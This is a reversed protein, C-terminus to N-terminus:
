GAGGSGGATGVTVTTTTTTTSTISATILAVDSSYAKLFGPMQLDETLQEVKKKPLGFAIAYCLDAARDEQSGSHDPNQLWQYYAYIHNYRQLGEPTYHQFFVASLAMMLSIFMAAFALVPHYFIVGFSLAFLLLGSGLVVHHKIKSEPLVPLQSNADQKLDVYWKEIMSQDASSEDFLDNLKVGDDGAKQKTHHLLVLEWDTLNDPTHGTSDVRYTESGDEGEVEEIKFAGKRSLDFLTAPLCYESIIHHNMAWGAIAPPVDPQDSTPSVGAARGKKQRNKWGFLIVGISILIVIYAAIEAYGALQEQRELYREYDALWESEKDEAWKPSVKQNEIPEADFLAAPSVIRVAVYHDEKLPGGNIHFKGGGPTTILERNQSRVWTHHGDDGPLNVTIDVQGTSKDWRDTVAKWFFQVWESNGELINDITYSIEFTRQEDSASYHWIVYLPDKDTEYYYSGEPGEKEDILEYQERDESITVNRINGTGYVENELRYDAWSFDGDFEYKRKEVVEVSGTETITYTLEVKIIHFDNAAATYSLCVLFLFILATHLKM